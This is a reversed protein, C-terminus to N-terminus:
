PAYRTKKLFALLAKLYAGDAPMGYLTKGRGADGREVAAEVQKLGQAGRDLLYEDALYAALVGRVDIKDRREALYRRWLAAADEAVVRPFRRTIDTLRGAEYHWIRIPAASTVYATFTYLFREDFAQLEPRGDGDYDAFRYGYNGWLHRTPRYTRRTADYRYIDSYVCCHAGGTYGDFIVEPEGGDLDRVYLQGPRWSPCPGCGYRPLAVDLAARGHRVIKLRADEVQYDRDRYSLTASVFGRSRHVTQVVDRSVDMEWCLLAGAQGGADDAIRLTWRGRAETGNLRSFPEEPRYPGDVFPAEAAAVPEADADQFVALQGGCGREGEGLDAGTGGRHADIPVAVGEPSVLSVTLESARPHEIRLSVRVFSVPGADPVLLTRELTGGAPIPAEITGTSYEKTAAAASASHVGFGALALLLLLPFYM